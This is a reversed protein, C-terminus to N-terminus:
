ITIMRSAQGLRGSTGWRKDGLSINVARSKERPWPSFLVPCESEGNGRAIHYCERGMVALETGGAPSLYETCLVPGVPGGGLGVSTPLDKQKQSRRFVFCQMTSRQSYIKKGRSVALSHLCFRIPDSFTASWM